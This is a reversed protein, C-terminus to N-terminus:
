YFVSYRQIKAGVNSDLKLGIDTGKTKAVVKGLEIIMPFSRRTGSYNERTGRRPPSSDQETPEAIAVRGAACCRLVRARLDLTLHVRDPMVLFCRRLLGIRNMYFLANRRILRLLLECRAAHAVVRFQRDRQLGVAHVVHVPM